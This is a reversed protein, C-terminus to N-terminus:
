EIRSTPRAPPWRTAAELGRELSLDVAPANEAAKGALRAVSAGATAIIIGTREPKGEVQAFIPYAGTGPLDILVDLRQAM